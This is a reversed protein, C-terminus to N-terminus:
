RQDETGLLQDIWKRESEEAVRAVAVADAPLLAEIENRLLARTIAAPMAEAEVTESIHASRRDGAKRPKTPLDYEKIQQSTIGIRKFWLTVEPSLHARLERELAV